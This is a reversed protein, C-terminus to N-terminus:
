IHKKLFSITRDWALSAADPDYVEPRQENLFAHHADYRHLEYPVNGQKLRRELSDILEPTCWDDHRAFHCLLPAKIKSLDAANEPPIGYFCVAADVEHTFKAATLLTLAGGMCTGLLAIRRGGARLHDIAGRLDQTLADNWDLGQMMHSAESGTAALRGHYLDPVLARYGEAALRDAVGKIQDNLGWWEQIVVVSAPGDARALYAGTKQGDPRPYQVLDGM